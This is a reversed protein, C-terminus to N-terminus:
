VVAAVRDRGLNKTREYRDSGLVERIAGVNMILM